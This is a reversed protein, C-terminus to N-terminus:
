RILTSQSQLSIMDWCEWRLGAEGAGAVGVEVLDCKTWIGTHAWM